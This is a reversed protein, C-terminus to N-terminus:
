RKQGDGVDEVIKAMSPGGGLVDVMSCSMGQKKSARIDKTGFEIIFVSEGRMKGLLVRVVPTCIKTDTSVSDEVDESLHFQVERSIASGRGRAKGEVQVEGKM